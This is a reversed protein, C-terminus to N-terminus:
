SYGCKARFQFTKIDERLNNYKSEGVFFCPLATSSFTQGYYGFLAAYALQRIM